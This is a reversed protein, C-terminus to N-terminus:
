TYNIFGSQNFNAITGNRYFVITTGNPYQNFAAASTKQYFMSDKSPDVARYETRITGNSYKYTFGDDIQIKEFTVLFETPPTIWM